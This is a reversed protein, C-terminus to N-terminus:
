KAANDKNTIYALPIGSLRLNIIEDIKDKIEFHVDNGYNLIIDENKMGLVYEMLEKTEIEKDDLSSLRSVIYQKLQFYTM